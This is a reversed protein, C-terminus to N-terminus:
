FSFSLRLGIETSRNKPEFLEIGESPDDPNTIIFSDSQGISWRRLFPGFRIANSGVPIDAIASLEFGSGGNLGVEVDPLEPDLDSFRSTAEGGVVINYRASLTLGAGGGFGHRLALGIPVYSYVLERDYGLLGDESEEGGSRDSLVRTAFGAFPTLSTTESLMFDRGVHLEFHGIGQSVGDLRTEGEGPELISGGSRYDASGAAGSLEARVFWGKGLTEVYGLRIGVFRGDDRVVTEGDQTERYSYDFAEVGAEFGGRTQAGANSPVLAAGGTLALVIISM